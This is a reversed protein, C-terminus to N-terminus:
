AVAARAAERLHEVTELGVTVSGIEAPKDKLKGHADSGGTAILDYREALKRYRKSAHSTHDTHYVELAQLGVGMLEPIAEDRGIKGPHALAAVGGSAIIAAIAEEANLNIHPEFAPAGRVLFKGFASNMGSAAGLECIAQAIHPRGVAGDGAIEVVREMEVGVGIKRLKGVIRQGRELRADRQRCLTKALSESALDVFFGLIHVETQRYDTNIEVAPVFTVGADKAAEIAEALGDVTDHDAIAVGGLGIEAAKRVIEAPDWVGDSANSHVHLDARDHLASKLM